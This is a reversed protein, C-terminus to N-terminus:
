RNRLRVQYGQSQFAAVLKNAEDGEANVHFCIDRVQQETPGEIHLTYIKLGLKHITSIMKEVKEAGMDKIIGGTIEIRAGPMGIGLIPNIIKYFFDATTVIGVVTDKDVVVASGVKNKQALAAVEEADNDPSVTVVEKKMIEKVKTKELIYSVEWVSLSTVKGPSVHELDRSTIIGVLKGKDVVPLHQIRHAEMIRKSEAISTDSSITIVNYSMIDRVRM